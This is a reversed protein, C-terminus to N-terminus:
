GTKGVELAATYLADGAPQQYISQMTQPNKWGGLAAALTSALQYRRRASGCRSERQSGTAFSRVRLPVTWQSAMRRTTAFDHTAVEEHGLRPYRDSTGRSPPSIDSAPGEFWSRATGM